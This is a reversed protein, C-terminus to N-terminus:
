ADDMVEEVEDEPDEIVGNEEENSKKQKGGKDKKVKSDKFDKLAAQLPEVFSEFELEELANIVDQGLLTKRNVKQPKM